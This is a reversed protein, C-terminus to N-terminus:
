KDCLDLVVKLNLISRCTAYTFYNSRISLSGVNSM